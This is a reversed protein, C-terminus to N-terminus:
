IQVVKKERNSVFSIIIRDIIALILVILFLINGEVIILNEELLSAVTQYMYLGLSISCISNIIKNSFQIQSSFYIVTPFLVILCISDQIIISPHIISIILISGFSLITLIPSLINKFWKCECKPIQSLLIGAGIGAIGRFIGYDTTYTLILVYCIVSLIGTIANFVKRNKAIKYLTFYIMFVILMHPIYWLYGWISNEFFGEYFQIYSILQFIFCIGFTFSIPGVRKYILNKIGELYTKDYEKIFSKIIYFGSLIFFFDVAIRGNRFMESRNILSFGHYYMVWLSACLRLIELISNRDVVSKNSKKM